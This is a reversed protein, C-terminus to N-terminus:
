LRFPNRGGVLKKIQNLIEEYPEEVQFCAGSKMEIMTGEDKSVYFIEVHDLRISGPRYEHEQDQKVGLEELDSNHEKNYCEVTVSLFKM